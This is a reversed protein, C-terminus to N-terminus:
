GNEDRLVTELKVQDVAVPLEGTAPVEVRRRDVGLQGRGLERMLVLTHPGAPAHRFVPDHMLGEEPPMALFLRRYLSQAPADLADAPLLRASLAGLARPTRLQVTVTAGTSRARLELSATERGRVEVTQPDFVLRSGDGNPLSSVAVAYTGPPLGGFGFRGADSVAGALVLGREGAGVLTVEGRVPDGAEDLAQGVVAGGAQLTVTVGAPNAALPAEAPQYLPHRVLLVAAGAPAHEARFRGAADTLAPALPPREEPAGYLRDRLADRGRPDVALVSAKALPKGDPDLVQGEIARGADLALEGLDVDRGMAANATVVAPALGQAEVVVAQPGPRLLDARFRRQDDLKQRRGNVWVAEVATGAPARIRGKVAPLRPLALSVAKRAGAEVDATSKPGALYGERLASVRYKGPPAHEFTFTGDAETPVMAMGRGEAPAALVKAGALPKGADDVVRGSVAGGSPLTVDAGASVGRRISLTAEARRPLPDASEVALTYDGDALGELRFSGNTDVARPPRVVAGDPGRLSVAARVAGPQDPDRVTGFAAAGPALSLRLDRMPHIRTAEGPLYREHTARVTYEGEALPYLEFSGDAGTRVSLRCGPCGPAADTRVAEVVADPLGDAADNLVFGAIITARALEMELSQRAGATIRVRSPPRSLHGNAAVEVQWPGPPLPALEFSGDQHTRARRLEEASRAQRPFLVVDAGALPGNADKVHGAVVGGKQLVLSIPGSSGLTALVQAGESGSVASVPYDRGPLDALQFQGAADTRTRNTRCDSQALVEAGSVPAGGGRTVTGRLTVRPR